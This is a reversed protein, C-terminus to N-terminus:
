DRISHWAFTRRSRRPQCGIVIGTIVIVVSLSCFFFTGDIGFQSPVDLNWCILPPRILCYGTIEHLGVKPTPKNQMPLVAPTTKEAKDTIICPMVEVKVYLVTGHHIGVTPCPSSAQPVNNQYRIHPQTSKYGQCQKTETERAGKRGCERM